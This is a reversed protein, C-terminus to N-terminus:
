LFSFLQICEAPATQLDIEVTLPERAHCAKLVPEKKLLAVNHKQKELDDAGQGEGLESRVHRATPFTSVWEM